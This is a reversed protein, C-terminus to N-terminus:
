FEKRFPLLFSLFHHTTLSYLSFSGREAGWCKTSASIRCIEVRMSSLHCFLCAPMMETSSVLLEGEWPKWDLTASLGAGRPAAPVHLHCATVPHQSGLATVFPVPQAVSSQRSSEGMMVVRPFLEPGPPSPPKMKQLARVVRFGTDLM